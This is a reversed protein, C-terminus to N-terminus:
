LKGKQNQMENRFREDAQQQQMRQYENGGDMESLKQEYLDLLGQRVVPEGAPRQPEDALEEVEPKPPRSFPRPAPTERPRPAPTERPRPTETTTTVIEEEYAAPIAIRQKTNVKKKIQSTEAESEDNVRVKPTKVDAVFPLKSKYRDVFYNKNQL